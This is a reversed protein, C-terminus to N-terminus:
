SDPYKKRCKYHKHHNREGAAVSYMKYRNLGREKCFDSLNVVELEEGEPTIVIWEKQKAEINKRLADEQLAAARLKAKSEETHRRGRAKEGMKRRQEESKPVGKFRESTLKKNKESCKRGRNKDGILKKTDESHTRGYFSNLEGYKPVPKNALYFNFLIGGEDYGIRGYKRIELEELDYAYKETMNEQVKLIVPEIGKARLKLIHGTLRKNRSTKMTDSLHQYCRRNKGKGVYFPMGTTPNVLHYVYYVPDLSYDSDSVLEFM